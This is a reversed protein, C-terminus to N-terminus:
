SSDRLVFPLYIRLEEVVNLIFNDGDTLEGDDVTVSITTTGTMGATPTITVTRTVGSGGFSIGGGLMLTGSLGGNVLSLNSSEAYLWLSDLASDTDSIVFTVTIPTFTGWGDLTDAKHRIWSELRTDAVESVNIRMGTPSDPDPRAAIDIPIPVQPLPRHFLDFVVVPGLGDALIKPVKHQLFDAPLDSALDPYRALLALSDDRTRFSNMLVLPLGSDDLAAKLEGADLEYPFQIEIADFGALRAQEIRELWPLETFLTSINASFRLM